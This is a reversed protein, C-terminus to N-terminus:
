SNRVGHCVEGGRGVRGCIRLNGGIRRPQISGLALRHQGGFAGNQHEGPCTGSLCRREGCPQCMEDCRPACPGAFNKADGEGVLRRAFHAFAHAPMDAIRDFPHRPQARKMRDPCSHQAAMGFQDPQFAIVRDDVRVVLDAQELLQDLFVVDVLFAPRRPLQGAQEVPPLIAPEIGAIEICDLIFAIGVPAAGLEVLEILVPQLREVGAVEAVKQQVYQVDEARM